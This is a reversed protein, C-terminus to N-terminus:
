HGLSLSPLRCDGSIYSLIRQYKAPAFESVWHYQGGSTPARYIIILVASSSCEFQWCGCVPWRPWPCSLSCSALSLGSTHTSYRQSAEMSCDEWPHVTTADSCHHIPIRVSVDLHDGLYMAGHQHVHDDYETSLNAVPILLLCWSPPDTSSVRFQQDKGMRYMDRADVQENEGDESLGMSDVIEHGDKESLPGAM